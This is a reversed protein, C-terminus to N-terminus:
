VNSREMLLRAKKIANEALIAPNESFAYLGLPSYELEICELVPLDEVLALKVYYIDAHLGKKFCLIVDKGNISAVMLLYERQKEVLVKKSHSKLTNIFLDVDTSM